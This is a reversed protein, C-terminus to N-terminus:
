KVGLPDIQKSLRNSFRTTPPNKKEKIKSFEVKRVLLWRGAITVFNTKKGKNRRQLSEMSAM